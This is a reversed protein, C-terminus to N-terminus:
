RTLVSGRRDEPYMEPPNIKELRVNFEAQLAARGNSIIRFQVGFATESLIFELVVNGEKMRTVHTGKLPLTLISRDTFVDAYGIEEEDGISTTHASLTFTARYSGARMPIYPGYILAGVAGEPAYVSCKNGEVHKTGISTLLRQEREPWATQVIDDIYNQLLVRNPPVESKRAEAWWVFSDEPRNAAEMIRRLYPWKPGGEHTDLSLFTGTERDRCIWLGRITVNAFGALQLLETAESPTFEIIHEPHVWRLPATIQRNPSDLILWGNPKLVRYAEFLFGPIEEPWLHEINQGSFVLDVQEDNVGNMDSVTNPIWEAEPALYEPKPTYYELGIHRDIATPYNDSIWKFYWAGACGASLFIRAGSPMSRVCYTRLEHLLPIFHVSKHDFSDEMIDERGQCVGPERDILAIRTLYNILGFRIFDRQLGFSITYDRMITEAVAEAFRPVEEIGDPGRKIERWLVRPFEVVDDPAV